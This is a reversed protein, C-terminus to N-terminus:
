EMGKKGPTWFPKTLVARRPWGRERVLHDRVARVTHAEGAVYATGPEGPLPLDRVAAVLAASSAAPAGHRYRWTLDLPLRDEPTDVEVVGHVPADGLSRLMPGFAVSATEEGAFVHYASPRPVFSGEPKGFAVEEGPRVTRAWGAGPGDGHDLVLLELTAGDYAWVSYTRRTLPGDVVVRVQQGPTWALGPASIAIRRMRPTFAGAETVTGRVFLRDILIRAIGHARDTAV